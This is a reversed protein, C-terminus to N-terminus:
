RQQCLGSLGPAADRSAILFINGDYIIIVTGGSAVTRGRHVEEASWRDRDVEIPLTLVEHNRIERGHHGGQDGECLSPIGFSAMTPVDSRTHTHTNRGQWKQKSVQKDHETAFPILSEPSTFKMSLNYKHLTAYLNVPIIGVM